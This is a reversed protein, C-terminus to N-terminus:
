TDTVNEIARVLARKVQGFTQVDTTEFMSVMQGRYVARLEYSGKRVRLCAGTAAVVAVVFIMLVLPAPVDLWRTTFVIAIVSALGSSGVAAPVVPPPPVEVSHVHRLERIIFVRYQPRWVEFARYTIRVCPGRYFVTM